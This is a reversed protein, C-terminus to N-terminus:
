QSKDAKRAASPWHVVATLGSSTANRTASANSAQGAPTFQPPVMPAAGAGTGSTSGVAVRQLFRGDRAVSWMHRTPDGSSPVTTGSAGISRPAGAEIKAGLALDVAMYRNDLTRYYLVKNNWDWRPQGGGDTSVQQRLDGAPFSMVYVQFQGAENEDSVYALWKGDKSFQAEDKQYRGQVVPFPKGPKRDADLPLAYIDPFADKGYKFAIYKGDRSWDEVSENVASEVLPTEAGVGNSRKIYIDANDKRWSTFAIWEGDPSWVPDVSDGAGSTLRFPRAKEWEVVWIDATPAGPDQKTIAISRADPSLDMDGYNGADLATGGRSGARDIWAFQSPGTRGRGTSASTGSGQFYILVGTRSV